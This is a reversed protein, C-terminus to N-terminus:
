LKCNNNKRIFKLERYNSLEILHRIKRNRSLNVEKQKDTKM